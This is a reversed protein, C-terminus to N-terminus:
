SYPVNCKNPVWAETQIEKTTREIEQLREPTDLYVCSKYVLVGDIYLDCGFRMRMNYIIHGMLHEAKVGNYRKEGNPYVRISAFLIDPNFKM